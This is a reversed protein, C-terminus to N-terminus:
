IGLIKQKTYQKISICPLLYQPKLLQSSYVMIYAYMQKHFCSLYLIYSESSMQKTDKIRKSMLCLNYMKFESQMHQSM